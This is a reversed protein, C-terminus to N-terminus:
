GHESWNKIFPELLEGTASIPSALAAAYALNAASAAKGKVFLTSLNREFIADDKALSPLDKSLIM